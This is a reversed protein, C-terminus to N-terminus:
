LYFKKSLEDKLKQVKECVVMILAFIVCPILVLLSWSIRNLNLFRNIIIEVGICLLGVLIFLCAGRYLKPISVARIIFTSLLVGFFASITLPLGITPYWSFDGSLGSILAIYVSTAIFCIGISFYIRESGMLFPVVVYVYISAFAGFVYLSWSIGSSVLIDTIICILTPILAVLASIVAASKKDISRMREFEEPYPKEKPEKWPNTRNIVLTDCLPCRKESDALEVGCNVCYSMM